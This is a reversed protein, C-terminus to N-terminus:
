DKVIPADEIELGPGAGEPERIGAVMARVADSPPRCFPTLALAVGFNLVMGVLSREVLGDLGLIRIVPAAPLRPLRSAAALRMRASRPTSIEECRALCSVGSMTAM